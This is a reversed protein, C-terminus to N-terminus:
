PTSPAGTVSMWRAPRLATRNDDRWGQVRRAVLRRSVLEYLPLVAQDNEIISEAQSLERLRVDADRADRARDLAAEFAANKYGSANAASDARLFSFFGMPDEYPSFWAARVIEFEGNRTAVEVVQREANRLRTKVGVTQWMAAVAVAVNKHEESTHYLLEVELPRGPGYGAAALLRRSEALAAGRGTTVTKPTRGLLAAPVLSDTPRDGSRVIKDTIVNRDIALSLARRVRPDQFKPHRSRFLM